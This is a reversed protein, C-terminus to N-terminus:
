SWRSRCEKGVRREESRLHNEQGTTAFARGYEAAGMARPGYRGARYLNGVGDASAVGKLRRQNGPQGLMLQIRDVANFVQTAFLDVPHQFKGHLRRCQGAALGSRVQWIAM